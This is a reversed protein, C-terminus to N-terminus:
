EEQGEERGRGGKEQAVLAGGDGAASAAAGTATAALVRAGTGGADSAHGGVATVKALAGPLAHRRRGLRPCQPSPLTHRRRRRARLDGVDRHVAPTVRVPLLLLVRALLERIRRRILQLLVGLALALLNSYPRDIYSSPHGLTLMTSALTDSCPSRPRRDGGTSEVPQRPKVLLLAAAALPSSPAPVFSRSRLRSCLSRVDPPASSLPPSPLIM